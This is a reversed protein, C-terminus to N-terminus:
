FFFCAPTDYPKRLYNISFVHRKHDHTIRKEKDLAFDDYEHNAM